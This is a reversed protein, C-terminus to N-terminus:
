FLYKSKLDTWVVEVCFLVHTNRVGVSFRAPYCNYCVCWDFHTSLYEGNLFVTSWFKDVELSVLSMLAAFGLVFKVKGKFLILLHSYEGKATNCHEDRATSVIWLKMQCSTIFQARQFIHNREWCNSLSNLCEKTSNQIGTNSIHTM